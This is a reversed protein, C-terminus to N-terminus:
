APHHSLAMTMRIRPIQWRSKKEKKAMQFHNEFHQTRPLLLLLGLLADSMREQRLNVSHSVSTTFALVRVKLSLGAKTPTTGYALTQFCQAVPVHECQFAGLEWPM